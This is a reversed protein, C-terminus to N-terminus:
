KRHELVDLLRGLAVADFDSAVRVRTGSVFVVELSEIRAPPIEVFTLPSVDHTERKWSRNKRGYPGLRWKWWKLADASIRLEAAFGAELDTRGALNLLRKAARIAHPSRAAIARALELAAARPDPDTRTALGLTVAETGSVMRGTFTLEKAVDRGVLEPLLQSGTMDPILGWRIELV